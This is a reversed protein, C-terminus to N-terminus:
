PHWQTIQVVEKGELKSKARRRLLWESFELLLLSNVGDWKEGRM